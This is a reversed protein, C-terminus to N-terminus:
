LDRQRFRAGRSTRPHAPIRRSRQPAPRGDADADDAGGRRSGQQQVAPHHRPDLRPDAGNTLDFLGNFAVRHGHEDLSLNNDIFKQTVEMLRRFPVLRRGQSSGLATKASAVDLVNQAAMVIAQDRAFDYLSRIAHISYRQYPRANYEIFGPPEPRITRPSSPTLHAL